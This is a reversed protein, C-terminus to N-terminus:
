GTRKDLVIRGNILVVLPKSTAEFPGDSWVVVDAQKGPELTGVRDDVRLLKAPTQTISRMVADLPVGHRLAYMAQRALGDEDRLDNATLATEIGADVLARMTHLRAGDLETSNRYGAPTIYMPGYIVPVDAARLEDTCRHAETGEELVFRLDFEKALRLASLIDRQMRAQIRLPVEGTLMKSLTKMAPVSPTDAGGVPLGQGHRQTDYLAKRFVWTVGMRTTPRRAHFDVYQRFPRTNRPGRLFPDSGMVAKVADAERVIRDAMPGGTRVIAGQSTLVAAPDASVFVTTVGGSLLREFDPSRLNVSDIVRTHPIVESSQEALSGHRRVGVALNPATNPFGCERCDEGDVHQLARSCMSGCCGAIPKDSHKVCFVDHLVSSATRKPTIMLDSAEIAANADILGPTVSGGQVDIVTAGAPVSLNAGVATISGDTIVVMGDQVVAGTGTHVQASKIVITEASTQPAVVFLTAIAAVRLALRHSNHPNNM